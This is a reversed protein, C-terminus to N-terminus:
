YDNRDARAISSCLNEICDAQRLTERELSRCTAAFEGLEPFTAGASPQWDALQRYVPALEQQRSLIQQLAQILDQKAIM